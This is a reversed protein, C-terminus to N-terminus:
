EFWPKYDGDARTTSNNGYFQAYDIAWYIVNAFLAANYVKYGYGYGYSRTTPRKKSDIGFPEIIDTGMTRSYQSIFGGDGVFFLGKNSSRLMTVGRGTGNGNRAETDRSYVIVPHSATIGTVFGTASADEGWRKDRLDGFPGNLIPDDAAPANDGTPLFPYITGAGGNYTVGTLGNTASKLTTTNGVIVSSVITAVNDKLSNAYYGDSM